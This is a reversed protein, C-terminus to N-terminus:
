GDKKETQKTGGQQACWHIWMGWLAVEFNRAFRPADCVPSALLQSRLRSRLQALGDLDSAFALAKAVYDETDCAVWDGLGTNAMIAEGQHAIFRDGSLTLTPVGMWLGEMTTTIGPYPFPDLAIDVQQYIALHEKRSPAWHVLELRDSSIGQGAFRALVGKRVAADNLQKAKLLLRSGPVAKLVNCWSMLVGENIKILNNFSGFTVYGQSLAPPAGPELDLEPPTFCIYTEPLRWIKEVFHCEEESPVALHDAMLYDIASVGSTGLYGLWAVQVPAPKWAVVSLRTHATHGALDILIDVADDHIRAALTSDSQGVVRTWRSFHPKLGDTVRDELHHASYAYLEVREVDLAALLGELFFAVSHQRLDGSLLGVRLRKDPRPLCSWETFPTAKAAVLGGYVRAQALLDGPLLDSIFNQVFLLNSLADLYDPRLEIARRFNVVAEQSLGLDLEVLGLNNHAEHFRPNCVLANRYCLAADERRGLDRLANGLNNHAEALNPSLALVKRFCDVAADTRGLDRLVIGLNLWAQSHQASLLLVRRYSDEAEVLRGLKQLVKGLNFHIEPTGPELKLAHRYSAEADEFRGLEELAKGLNIRADFFDAELALSKEFYLIATELQGTQGMAVGMYCLAIFHNPRVLLLQQYLAVAEEVRGSQHLSLAEDLFSDDPTM